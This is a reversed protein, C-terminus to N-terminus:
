ALKFGGALGMVNGPDVATKLSRLAPLNGGYLNELPTDYIAYNPYVPAGNAATQGLAIAANAVQAASAKAASHFQDDFAELAWAFYINFPLLGLTRVPPFATTQANHTYINALFPEVDYSIFVGSQLSLRAGWFKYHSPVHSAAAILCSLTQRVVTENLVVDLLEPTYQLVSATNFIARNNATFNAPSSQVLSLFSRTSIDKTFYPIALFEDFIGSPPTPGDYFILQSIGPQGLVFNYTTIISAKPDNVNGGFNATATAVSPIQNETFTILGGWVQGQPFTRLTFRTVIGFNNGGGKLGFFLNPDSAETVTVVQGDPKVLEFATVTDVTLGYQNTLWSYGGGLTFGGVGVGSVRGGVVNVNFPALAAYVDDWILGSGIVATQSNPDYTVESFRIMSIHVGSTSSFGPNSAHGGGKVAFPTKNAAVIQLIIGVDAATGPVVACASLQSSSSAWHYTAIIYDPDGPYYVDTAGSVAGAIQACVANPLLLGTVDSIISGLALRPLVSLFALALYGAKSVM